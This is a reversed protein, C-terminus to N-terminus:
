SPQEEVNTILQVAGPRGRYTPAPELPRVDTLVMAYLPRGRSYARLIDPDILHMDHRGVMEDIDLPGVVQTCRATAVIRGLRDKPYDLASPHPNRTSLIYFPKNRPLHIAVARVDWRKNGAAIQDAFPQQVLYGDM